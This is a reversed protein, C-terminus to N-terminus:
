RLFLFFRPLTVRVGVTKQSSTQFTTRSASEDYFLYKGWYYYYYYYFSLFLLSRALIHDTHFRFSLNSGFDLFVSLLLVPERLMLLRLFNYFFCFFICERFSIYVHSTSSCYTFKRECAANLHFFFWYNLMKNNQNLILFPRSQMLLTEQFDM